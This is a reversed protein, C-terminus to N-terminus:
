NAHPLELDRALDAGRPRMRPTPDRVLPRPALLPVVHGAAGVLALVPMGEFFALAPYHAVLDESLSNLEYPLDGTGDTDLDYGRYDDFDNGEWRTGLADGGGQVLVQTENGTFANGLFANRTQSSHFVVAAQSLAVLNEEFLNHEDNQFPSTDLYIGVTNHAILNHAVTLNGSEKIGLGIGAAGLSQSILNRQLKLDRSYMVFVGVENGLYRNDEVQNRHSFMFHTGYRGDRVTNRRLRNDSSYWVVCDRSQEVLNDEITAGTTEWLRIGDGRMGLTLGPRGIVENGILRPRRAKESLIGFFSDLVKVGRVEVDDGSVHVAADLTDFRDGSGDITLGLLRAGDAVWVTTGKGSSRVIAARSGWVTVGPPVKLPGSYDGEALCLAQGPPTQKLLAALDEGPRVARCGEPRPPPAPPAHGPATSGERGVCAGLLVVPVLARLGPSM